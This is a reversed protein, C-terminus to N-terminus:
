EDGDDDEDELDDEGDGAARRPAAMGGEDFSGGTLITVLSKAKRFGQPGDIAISAEGGGDPTARAGVAGLVGDAISALLGESLRSRAGLAHVRVYIGTKPAPDNGTPDWTAIWGHQDALAAAQEQEWVGGAEWVLKTGARTIREAFKLLLERDRAGPTLEARTELVFTDAQVAERAALLWDLGSTDDFRLAGRPQNVISRPVVLALRATAPVEQRWERLRGVRPLPTKFALEAFSLDAFYGARPTRDLTAGVHLSLTTM